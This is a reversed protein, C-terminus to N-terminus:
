QPQILAFYPHRCPKAPKLTLTDLRALLRSSARFCYACVFCMMVPSLRAALTLRSAIGPDYRNFYATFRDEFSEESGYADNQQEM